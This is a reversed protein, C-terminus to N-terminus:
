LETVSGNVLYEKVESLDERNMYVLIGFDAELGPSELYKQVQSVDRDYPPHHDFVEGHKTKFEYVCTDDAADYRGNEIKEEWNLHLEDEFENKLWSHVARGKETLSLNEIYNEVKSTNKQELLYEWNVRQPEQM